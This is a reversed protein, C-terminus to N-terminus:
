ATCTTCSTRAELGSTPFRGGARQGRAPAAPRLSFEQRRLARVHPVPKLDRCYEHFALCDLIGPSVSRSSRDSGPLAEPDARYRRHRQHRVRACLHRSAGDLRQLGRGERQVRCDGGGDRVEGPARPSGAARRVRPRSLGGPPELRGGRGHRARALTIVALMRPIRTVHMNMCIRLGLPDCPDLDTMLPTRRDADTLQYVLGLWNNFMAKGTDTWTNDLRPELEADPFAPPVAGRAM